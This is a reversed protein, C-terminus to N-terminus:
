RRCEEECQSQKWQLRLFTAWVLPELSLWSTLQWKGCPKARPQRVCHLLKHGSVDHAKWVQRVSHNRPLCFDGHFRASIAHLYINFNFNLVFLWILSAQFHSSPIEVLPSFFCSLFTKKILVWASSFFSHINWMEPLNLSKRRERCSVLSKKQLSNWRNKTKSVTM